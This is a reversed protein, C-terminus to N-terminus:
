PLLIVRRFGEEGESITEVGEEKCVMHVVRRESPNMAPLEIKQKNTKVQDIAKLVTERLQSQRKEKYDNIDVVVRIDEKIENERILKNLFLSVVKEFARLSKGQFGILLGLDDGKIYVNIYKRDEEGTSMEATIEASLEMAEIIEKAFDVAKKVLEENKM